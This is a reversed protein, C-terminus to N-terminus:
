LSEFLLTVQCGVSNSTSPNAAYIQIKTDNEKRVGYVSASNNGIMWAMPAVFRYGSPITVTYSLVSASTNKPIDFSQRESYVHKNKITGTAM